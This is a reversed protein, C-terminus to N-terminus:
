DSCGTGNTIFQTLSASRVEATNVLIRVPVKLFSATDEESHGVQYRASRTAMKKKQLYKYANAKPQPFVLGSPHLDFFHPLYSIGSFSILYKSREPGLGM